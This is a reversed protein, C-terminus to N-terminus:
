PSRLHILPFLSFCKQLTIAWDWSHPVEKHPDSFYYDKAEEIHVLHIAQNSDLAANKSLNLSILFLSISIYFKLM